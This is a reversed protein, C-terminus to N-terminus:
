PIAVSKLVEMFGPFSVEVCSTDDIITEGSAVLGAVALAMAMRHDGYSHCLAGHLRTPGRIVFGDATARIDAGMRSLETVIAALRDTEKVRLEEADRVTTEGEAQTAAVALIPLEDILRPIIDGEIVTGHLRSASVVIDAVPEGGSERQNAVTLRAGMRQLVDLAGTRTPNVGVDCIVLHSDPVIAAAVLFFAASSLDGPVDLAVARLSQGGQVRVSTGEQSLAVGMARLMRETHDRSLAPERVVTEGEAFLSALLLASKVQASAVPLTYDVSKLRGGRITLPPFRGEDRGLVTAGMKRLPEAIRAMPRRRLSDDGTIVSYFSQGALVGALLRMTTGSNGADLVNGPERLGDLGQGVVVTEDGADEIAVGLARLCRLTSLCDASSALNRITVHGNALAGLILARHSISKDGPVRVEGQVTQAPRIIGSM